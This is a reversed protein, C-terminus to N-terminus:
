ADQSRAAILIGHEAGIEGLRTKAFLPSRSYVEGSSSVAHVPSESGSDCNEECQVGREGM